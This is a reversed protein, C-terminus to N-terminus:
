KGAEKPAAIEKAIPLLETYPGEWGHLLSTVASQIIWPEQTVQTYFERLECIRNIGAEMQASQKTGITIPTGSWFALSLVIKVDGLSGNNEVEAFAEGLPTDPYNYSHFDRHAQYRPDALMKVLATQREIEARQIADVLGKFANIAEKDTMAKVQKPATIERIVVLLETVTGTWNELMDAALRLQEPTLPEPLDALARLATEIGVNFDPCIPASPLFLQRDQAM